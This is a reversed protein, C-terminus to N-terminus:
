KQKKTVDAKKSRFSQPSIVKNAVQANKRENYKMQSALPGPGEPLRLGVHKSITRGSTDKTDARNAVIQWSFPVNSTGGKLEKVTFGEASKDTVFVGNCDGELTVYVKLPHTEDVFISKRLIPDIEIRSQGNVLKGVGYDQFVIEPAEPAFMIRPTGTHDKIITSVSGPGIIKYDTGSNGILNSNHRLGVYAYSPTGNNVNGGGFYGGFYSNQANLVPTGGSGTAAVNDFGALIAVARYGTNTGNTAPNNDTDLIFEAGHNGRNAVANAGLGAYGTVGIRSSTASIGSGISPVVSTAGANGVAEFGIGNTSNAFAVGGTGEGYLIAGAGPFSILGLNQGVAVLGTRNAGANTTNWAIVGYGTDAGSELIAGAFGYGRVGINSSFGFVGNGAGSSNEGYLGTGTATYGSVAYETAAAFSAFRDGSIPTNSNVTVQGAAIGLQNAGIRYFGLDSDGNFSYVPLTATGNTMARLKGRNTANGGSIEFAETNSTRFRLEQTDTTGLFNVGTTTGANGISSWNIMGSDAAIKDWDSGNNYYFGPTVDNITATNYVIMGAVDNTLPAPSTTSTLAVRPLLIGGPSATADVDLLADSNPTVTGIGVQGQISFSICLAILLSLIFQPTQPPPVHKKM